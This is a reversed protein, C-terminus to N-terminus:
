EMMNDKNSSSFEGEKYNLLKAEFKITSEGKSTNEGALRERRSIFNEYDETNKVTVLDNQTLRSM